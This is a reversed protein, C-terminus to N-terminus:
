AFLLAKRVFFRPFINLGAVYILGGGEFLQNLEEIVVVVGLFDNVLETTQFFRLPM